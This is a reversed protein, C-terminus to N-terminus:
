AEADLRHNAQGLLLNDILRTNGLFAAGLVVASEGLQDPTSFDHDERVELYDLRLDGSQLLRRGDAELQQRDRLGADFGERVRSLAQYLKAAVPRDTPSLLLNRSSMALGDPERVTACLVLQLDFNLDEVLQQLIRAQQYDKQGFYARSPAVLLFLKSVVTTVGNFHGPRSVGCLPETLPGGVVRTQFSKPYMEGPTTTFLADAGAQQLQATDGELDRPYQQLDESPAFQLPNVFISAVVVDCQRRARQVLSLHGSHLSGMTPVLGVSKGQRRWDRSAARMKDHSDLM